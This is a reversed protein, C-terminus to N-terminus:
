WSNWGSRSTLALNSTILEVSGVNGYMEVGGGEIIGWFRFASRGAVGMRVLERCETALGVFDFPRSVGCVFPIWPLWVGIGLPITTLPVVSEESVGVWSVEEERAMGRGSRDGRCINRCFRAAENGIDRASVFIVIVWSGSYSTMAGKLSVGYIPRDM